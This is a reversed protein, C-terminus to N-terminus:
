VRPQMSLLLAIGDAWRARKRRFLFVRFRGRKVLMFLLDLVDFCERQEVHFM